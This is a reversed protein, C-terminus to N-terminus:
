EAGKFEYNLQPQVERGVVQTMLKCATQLAHAAEDASLNKLDHVFANRNKRARNLRQLTPDDIEGHLSLSQTIVSATYDRGTLLKHRDKNFSTHGGNKEDVSALLKVWMHNLVVEAVTWALVTASTFQQLQYQHCAIYVLSLIDVYSGGFEKEFAALLDIANDLTALKLSLRSKKEGGLIPLPPPLERDRKLHICNGASVPQHIKYNGRQISNVSSAMCALFANAYAAYRSTIQVHLEFYELLKGSKTSSKGSDFSSREFDFILLGDDHRLTIAVSNAGQSQWDTQLAPVTVLKAALHVAFLEEGYAM